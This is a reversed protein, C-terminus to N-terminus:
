VRRPKAEGQSALAGPAASDPTMRLRPSFEQRGYGLEDRRAGAKGRLAFRGGSAGRALEPSGARLRYEAGARAGCLEHEDALLGAVALVALPLREDARGPAQEVLGEVLGPDVASLGVDGVHHLVELPGRAPL